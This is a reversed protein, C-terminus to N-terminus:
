QLKIGSAKVVAASRAISIEIHRGLEEPKSGVPTFGQAVISDRIEALGLIRAVEASMRRVIDAPTGAPALLGYFTGFDYSPDGIVEAIPPVEPLAASRSATTVALVRLKGARVHPLMAAPTNIMVSFVGALLDNLALSAGKYPVHVMDLGSSLKLREGSLHGVDGTSGTAYNLKGPNAKSYAVLDSLSQVPLEPRVAVVLLGTVLLSVPAFDRITDYPLKEMLSPNLVHNSIVFLYTYGDPAARAAERTGLVTSAGSKNEIVVPVGHSESLKRGIQRALVDVAGGPALPVIFRIPRSPWPQAQALAPGLAFVALALCLFM